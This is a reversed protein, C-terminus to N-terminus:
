ENNKGGIKCIEGGDFYLWMKNFMAELENGKNHKAGFPKKNEARELKKPLNYYIDIKRDFDSRNSLDLSNFIGEM